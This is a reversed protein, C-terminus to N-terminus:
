NESLFNNLDSRLTFRNSPIVIPRGQKKALSASTMQKTKIVASVSNSTALVQKDGGVNSDIIALNGQSKLRKRMPSVVSDKSAPAAPERSSIVGVEEPQKTDAKLPPATAFAKLTPDAPSTLRKSNASPPRETLKLQGNRHFRVSKGQPM